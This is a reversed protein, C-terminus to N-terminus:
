IGGERSFFQLDRSAGQLENDGLDGFPGREAEVSRAPTGKRGKKLLFKVPELSDMRLIVAVMAAISLADRSVLEHSGSWLIRTQIVLVTLACANLLTTDIRATNQTISSM